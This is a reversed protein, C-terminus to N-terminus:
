DIQRECGLRGLLQKQDSRRPLGVSTSHATRRTSTAGQSVKLGTARAVEKPRSFDIEQEVDEDESRVDDAGRGNLVRIAVQVIMIFWVVNLFQLFGLAGLFGWRVRSDFCIAGSPIVSLISCTRGGVPLCRRLAPSATRHDM